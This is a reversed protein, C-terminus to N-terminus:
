RGTKMQANWRHVAAIMSQRFATDDRHTRYYSPLHWLKRDITKGFELYNLLGLAMMGQGNKRAHSIYIKALLPLFPLRFSLRRILPWPASEFDEGPILDILLDIAREDDLWLVQCLHAGRLLDNATGDRLLEPFAPDRDLKWLAGAITLRRSLEPEQELM